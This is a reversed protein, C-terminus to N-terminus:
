IPAYRNLLFTPAVKNAGSSVSDQSGFFTSSTQPTFPTHFPPLISLTKPQVVISFINKSVSFSVSELSQEQCNPEQFLTSTFPLEQDLFPPNKSSIHTSNRGPTSMTPSPTFPTKPKGVRKSVLRKPDM